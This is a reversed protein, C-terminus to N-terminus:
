VRHMSKAESPEYKKAKYFEKKSEGLETKKSEHIWVKVKNFEKKSKM